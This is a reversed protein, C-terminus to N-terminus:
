IESSNIAELRRVAVILMSSDLHEHGKLDSIFSDYRSLEKKNNGLWVDMIKESGVVSSSKIVESTLRMQQHYFDSVMTKLSLRQWHTDAPLKSASIRLWGLNLRMGLAFYIEGVSLIDLKNGKKSKVNTVKVIDCASALAELYSIKRALSEPVGSKSLKNFKEDSAKRSIPSMIKELSSSIKALGPTFEDVIKSVNLPQPSNRLFWATAHEALNTIETFMEVQVKAPVKGDLAEIELWLPRLNFSDRVITYARAVDCAKMGTDELINHCFTIGMRNVISNTVFTSIIERRLPHEEIEKVFSERMEKPFYLMLDHTFYRDDPLESEILENYLSIKSYALLVAIEPRTLGTKESYRAAIGEENPLFEIKRKLLGSSELKKMLRAQQELLTTGQLETFTIAQTQLVNDRLVLGAVEDTMKALLEDRKAISLRKKEVSKSLAIKINVEHDSCDVGASNDIADTNIRGGNMAYEIRGLQTFGLNGGEGVIKCRLEEGNVRLPDNTRDGVNENSESSSKVYTGIGGNWLLDIPARLIAKILEDPTASDKNFDLTKKIEDNLKIIKAKRDFIGGGKSILKIDYDAWTSRPLNFIRKREKFSTAANPNPDIFIHMHNFAAVMRIKDSLLMGNGFVDGSMDGIGICTFEQKDINVGMEAFHRKVSVWGGRATIAMKKHDYGVSGGSAFADGLWFNYEASVSNAIDSFTATGKDAAVVLYPDDGDLRVVDKPPIIKGSVINDTIDLLGRLFTKYCEIGESMLADRGGDKPPHKVVFGGKSGVPVIVSNKVMQAKM